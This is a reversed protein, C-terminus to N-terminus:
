KAKECTTPLISYVLICVQCQSLPWTLNAYDMILPITNDVFSRTLPAMREWSAPLHEPPDKSVKKKQGVMGFELPLFTLSATPATAVARHDPVIGSHFIGDHECSHFPTCTYLHDFHTRGVHLNRMSSLPAPGAARPM